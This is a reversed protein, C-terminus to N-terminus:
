SHAIATPPGCVRRSLFADLADTRLFLQGGPGVPVEGKTRNEVCPVAHRPRAYERTAPRALAAVDTAPDMGARAWADLTSKRFLLRGRQGRRGDPKLNGRYVLARIGEPGKYRLYRAAEATTFWIETAM